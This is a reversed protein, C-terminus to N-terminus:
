HTIQACNSLKAKQIFPNDDARKNLEELNNALYLEIKNTTTTM